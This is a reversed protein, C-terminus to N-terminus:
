LCAREGCTMNYDYPYIVTNRRKPINLKLNTSPKHKVKIGNEKFFRNIEGVETLTKLHLEIADIIDAKTTEFNDGFTATGLERCEAAWRGDDEQEFIVTLEIYCNKPSSM